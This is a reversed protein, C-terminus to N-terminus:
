PASRQGTSIGTGGGFYPIRDRISTIVECIFASKSERADARAAFFSYGSATMTKGPEMSFFTLSKISANWGMSILFNLIRPDPSSKTLGAQGRM